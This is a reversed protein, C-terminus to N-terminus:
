YLLSPLGKCSTGNVGNSYINKLCGIIEKDIKTCIITDEGGHYMISNPSNFHDFGFVHLIEHVETVPYSECQVFNIPDPAYLEIEGNIIEGDEYYEPGGFGSAYETELELLCKIEIKGKEPVEIFSIINETDKEIINFAEVVRERREYYCPYESSFKYSIPISNWNIFSPNSNGHIRTRGDEGMYDLPNGYDFYYNWSLIIFVIILTWFIESNFIYRIFRFVFNDKILHKRTYKRHFNKGDM